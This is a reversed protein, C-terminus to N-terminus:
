AEITARLNNLEEELQRDTDLLAEEFKNMAQVIVNRLLRVKKLRKKVDGRAALLNKKTYRGDILVGKTTWFDLSIKEGCDAIYFAFSYGIEGVRSAPRVSFKFWGSDDSSPENLFGQKGWARM